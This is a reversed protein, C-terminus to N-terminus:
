TSFLKDLQYEGNPHSHVGEVAGQHSIFYKGHRAKGIKSTTRFNNHSRRPDLIHQKRWFITFPIEQHNIIRTGM